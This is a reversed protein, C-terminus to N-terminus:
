RIKKFIWIKCAIIKFYLKKEVDISNYKKLLWSFLLIGGQKATMKQKRQNYHKGSFISVNPARQIALSEKAMKSQLKELSSRLWTIDCLLWNTTSVGHGRNLVTVLKKQLHELKVNWSNLM